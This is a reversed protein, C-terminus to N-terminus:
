PIVANSDAAANMADLEDFQEQWSRVKMHMFVAGIEEVTITQNSNQIIVTENTIDIVPRSAIGGGRFRFGPAGSGSGNSEDATIGSGDDYSIQYLWSQGGSRCPEDNPSFTTFFVTGAVIAAPEVVREGPDEMLNKFWGDAFGVDNITATQDVLAPNENGDHRDFVCYFSEQYDTLIDDEELYAGTGFYVYIDGHEGFAAMPQATIEQSGSYLETVSWSGTTTTNNLAVRYVTGALDGVYAVDANGDFNLDVVSVATAKNRPGANLSLELTGIIDGTAVEIEYVYANGDVDDLGSGVLLVPTDDINTFKIESSFAYGDDLTTEWMYEPNEPDTIDLAFYHAGGRGSGGILVTRYSGNVKVDSVASTLDVSFLHCYNSDAIDKLLPLAFEPVFAWKEYGDSTQFAHLMGDNAGLYIMRERTAGTEAFVQYAEDAVFFSPEGVVVPASHVVDGLKWDLLRDRYGELEVGRTWNIVEAAEDVDVLDMASHLAGANDANLKYVSSGVATFISRGSASRAALLEGAEWVPADKDKYPLLFSELYGSWGLPNFKGRYIYDNDSSESSVVAVAAGTAVRGRINLRILSFSAQLEAADTATVYFGDGNLATEALLGSDLGFGITYTVVTQGEEWSEGPDGLDGRLDNRAMYFAVDDVHDSCDASNDYPAGISECDGPDNGDGDADWLEARVDRDMTPFGDTMLIVFSQQCDYQIPAGGSDDMFYDLIDEMAEGLPTWSDGAITNVANILTPKDTGCPALINAGDDFNFTALGIRVDDTRDIYDNVVVVAVDLRTEQPLDVREVDTSNYYIWNLYNGTYRGSHGNRGAVLTATVDNITYPATTGVYYMAGDIFGGAYTTAPLYDDDYMAENMSGSNDFLIMVNADVVGKQIFLPVDCEGLGLAALPWLVLAAMVLAAGAFGGISCNPNRNM